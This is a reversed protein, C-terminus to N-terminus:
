KVKTGLIDYKENGRIIYIVGNEIVKIAKKGDNINSIATTVDEVFTASVIVVCAPMVFQFNEDYAIQGIGPATVTLTGLKYGENPTVTMTVTQGM